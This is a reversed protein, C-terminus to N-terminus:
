SLMKSQYKAVLKIIRNFHPREYVVGDVKVIEVQDTDKGRILEYVKLLHEIEEKTMFEIQGLADLQSPHIIFKGDAGMEYAALCERKFVELDELNLDVGDLFRKGYAKAKLNIQHKFGTLNSAIHKMGMSSCFDHSGFGVCSISDKHLELISQLSVIGLPQEILVIFNLEQSGGIIRTIFELDSPSNVKPLVLRGGFIKALRRLQNESYVGEKFPVRVFYNEKIELNDLMEFAMMKNQLPVADELDLIFYDARISSIKELFKTRDAPIFFYSDIM